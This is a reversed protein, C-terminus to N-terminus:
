MHGGVRDLSALLESATWGLQTVTYRVEMSALPRMSVYGLSGLHTLCSQVEAETWDLEDRLARFNIGDLECMRELMAKAKAQIDPPLPDPEMM